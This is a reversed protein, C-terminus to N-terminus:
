NVLSFFRRVADDPDKYVKKDDGKVVIYDPTPDNAGILQYLSVGNYSYDKGYSLNSAMLAMVLTKPDHIM